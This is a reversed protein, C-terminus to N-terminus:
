GLICGNDENVGKKIHEQSLLLGGETIILLEMLKNNDIDEM